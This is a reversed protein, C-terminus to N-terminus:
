LAVQDGDVLGGGYTSTVIWAAAGARPTLLRLPGASRARHVDSRHERARVLASAFV